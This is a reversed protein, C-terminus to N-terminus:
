KNSFHGTNKGTNPLNFSFNVENNALEQKKEKKGKWSDNM